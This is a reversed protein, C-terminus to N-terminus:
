PRVENKDGDQMGPDVDLPDRAMHMLCVVFVGLATGVFLGILLEIM